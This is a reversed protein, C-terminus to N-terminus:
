LNSFAEYIFISYIILLYIKRMFRDCSKSHFPLMTNSKSIMFAICEFMGKCASIYLLTMEAVGRDALRSQQFLLKQKEM